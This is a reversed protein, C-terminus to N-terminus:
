SYIKHRFQRHYNRAAWTSGDASIYAHYGSLTAMGLRIYNSGDNGSGTARVVIHYSTADAITAAFTFTVAAYSTTLGAVSFESSWEGNLTSPTGSSDNYISVAITYTPSGFKNCSLLELKCSTYAATSLFRTATYTEDSTVGTNAATTLSGEQSGSVTTCSAAAAVPAVLQDVFGPSSLSVQARAQLIAFASPVFLAGRKLFKRRSTNM